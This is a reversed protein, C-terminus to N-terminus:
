GIWSSLKVCGWSELPTGNLAKPRNLNILTVSPNPNSLIINKYPSSGAETSSWRISVPRAASLVASRTSLHVSSRLAPLISLMM